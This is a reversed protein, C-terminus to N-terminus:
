REPRSCVSRELARALEAFDQERNYLQASIRVIRRAPNGWGYVPVEIRHERWLTEQLPDGEGKSGSQGGIPLPVAAMAGLMDEPAPTAQELAGCLVDRAVLALARNSAMVSPWGGPLLSAIFELAVPVSLAATPDCTGTWDFRARFDSKGRRAWSALDSVAAPAIREQRDRRVYLFGAGKPACLWKHCNGAYYAPALAGIDLPVMGPAHAGDVLTDVGRQALAGVLDGIPWILATPSTIHDLVALRVRPGVSDLVAGTVEAASALPFPVRAVVVRAGARSAAYEVANACAEYAHDTILIEDGPEFCLSRVVANVAATANAVFALDSPAAGVFAGLAELARDLRPELERALFRVPNAEMERRLRSQEELVARPCAGFSGHNLFRVEPDLMWHRRLEVEGDTPALM